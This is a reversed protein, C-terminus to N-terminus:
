RTSGSFTMCYGPSGERRASADAEQSEVRLREVDCQNSRGSHRTGAPPTPQSPKRWKMFDGSKSGKKVTEPSQLASM